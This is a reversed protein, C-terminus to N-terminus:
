VKLGRERMLRRPRRRTQVLAGHAGPARLGEAGSSGPEFGPPRVVRKTLVARLHKVNEHLRGPSRGFTKALAYMSFTDSALYIAALAVIYPDRGGTYPKAARLLGLARMKAEEGLNLKRAYVELAEEATPKVLPACALLAKFARKRSVRVGCRSLLACARALSVYTGTRKATVFLAVAAAEGAGVRRRLRKYVDLLASVPLSLEVALAELAICVSERGLAPVEDGRQLLTEPKPPEFIPAVVLGCGGCVLLGGREVLRSGCEPCVEAM